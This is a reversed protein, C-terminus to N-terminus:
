RVRLKRSVAGTVDEAWCPVPKGLRKFKFEFYGDAQSAKTSMVKGSCVLNVSASAVERNNADRVEGYM